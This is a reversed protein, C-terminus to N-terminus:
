IDAPTLNGISEHYRLQNYDAVFAAIQAELDGPLYYYELLIPNKLTQHWREIKGQTMLYPEGRVHEMNQGDLWKTLDSSIYSSGNDPPHGEGPEPGLGALRPGASRHCGRCEHNPAAELRHHLALLRRPRGFSLVLGLRHSESIHLRDAMACADDITHLRTQGAETDPSEFRGQAESRRSVSFVGFPVGTGGFVRASVRRSM